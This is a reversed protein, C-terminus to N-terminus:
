KKGDADQDSQLRMFDEPTDIDLVVGPEGVEIELIKDPNSRVVQRAGVDPPAALLEAFLESGFLVPHGRRGQFLPLVIAKGSSRFGELLREIAKLSVDPHDVPYLLVGRPHLSEATKLAAKVSSLMGQEYDTNIVVEEDPLEVKKLIEQARHGLVVRVANLSSSKLRKYVAGLVTEGAFPLLTKPRGMRESKGAALIIGVIM